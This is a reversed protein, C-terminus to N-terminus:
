IFGAIRPYVVQLVVARQSQLRHKEEVAIKKGLLCFGPIKTWHPHHLHLFRPENGMSDVVSDGPQGHSLSKHMVLDNSYFGYNWENQSSLHM